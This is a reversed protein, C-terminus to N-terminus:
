WQGKRSLIHLVTMCSFFHVVYHVKTQAMQTLVPKKETHRLDWISMSAAQLIYFFTQARVPHVSMWVKCFITDDDYDEIKVKLKFRFMVTHATIRRHNQSADPVSRGRVPLRLTSDVSTVNASGEVEVMRSRISRM